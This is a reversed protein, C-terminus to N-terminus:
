LKLVYMHIQWPQYPQHSQKAFVGAWKHRQRHPIQVITDQCILLLHEQQEERRRKVEGVRWDAHSVDAFALVYLRHSGTEMAICMPQQRLMLCVSLLGPNSRGSGRLTQLTRLGTRGRLGSSSYRILLFRVWPLPSALVVLLSTYGHNVLLSMIRDPSNYIILWITSWARIRCPGKAPPTRQPSPKLLLCYSSPM